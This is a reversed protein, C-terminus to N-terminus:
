HAPRCLRGEPRQDSGRRLPVGIRALIGEGRDLVFQAALVDHGITGGIEIGVAAIATNFDAGQFLVQLDSRALAIVRGTLLM